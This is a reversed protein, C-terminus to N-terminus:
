NESSTKKKETHADKRIIMKHVSKSYSIYEVLMIVNYKYASLNLTNLPPVQAAGSGLIGLVKHAFMQRPIIYEAYM